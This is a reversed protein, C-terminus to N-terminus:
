GFRRVPALPTPRVLPNKPPVFFIAGAGATKWDFGKFPNLAKNLRRAIVVTLIVLPFIPLALFLLAGLYRGYWLANWRWAFLALNRPEVLLSRYFFWVTLSARGGIDRVSYWGGNSAELHTVDNSLSALKGAAVSKKGVFVM